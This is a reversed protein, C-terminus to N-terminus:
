PLALFAFHKKNSTNTFTLQVDDKVFNTIILKEKYTGTFESVDTKQCFTVIFMGGM